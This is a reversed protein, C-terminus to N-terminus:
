EALEELPIIGDTSYSLVLYRADISDLLTRMAKAADRRSCFASRTAVWDPRIGAKSLLMGDSDRSSDVDPKDWLLITNLMFYNSGYQHGAYPPDVYCVDGSATSLFRTADTCRAEGRPGDTLQPPQLQM